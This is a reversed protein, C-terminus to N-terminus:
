ASFSAARAREALGGVADSLGGLPELARCGLDPCVADPVDRDGGPSQSM